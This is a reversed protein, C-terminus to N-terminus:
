DNHSGAMGGAMGVVSASILSGLPHEQAGEGGESTPQANFCRIQKSLQQMREDTQAIIDACQKLEDVVSDPVECSTKYNIQHELSAWFDMAITRLQVEVRVMEKRDSLFVPVQLVLHYSRYGNPKPNKIYDKVRLLTIDDQGTLWDALTYIDDVFSCIVRVGAVDNLEREVIEPTMALGKRRLKEAISEPSKVRSKISEIPNREGHLSFKEDLVRFKTEVEMIACRYCTMLERTMLVQKAVEEDTVIEKIKQRLEEDQM